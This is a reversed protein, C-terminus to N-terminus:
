QLLACNQQLTCDRHARYSALHNNTLATPDQLGRGKGLQLFTILHRVHCLYHAMMHFLSWNMFNTSLNSQNILRASVAVFMAQSRMNQSTCM